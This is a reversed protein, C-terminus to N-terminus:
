SNESSIKKRPSHIYTLYDPNTAPDYLILYCFCPPVQKGTNDCSKCTHVHSCIRINDYTSDGNTPISSFDDNRNDNEQDTNGEQSNTDHDPPRPTLYDDDLNYDDVYRNATDSQNEVQVTYKITAVEEAAINRRINDETVVEFGGKDNGSYLRLTNVDKSYFIEGSSGVNRDLFDDKRPIIRIRNVVPDNQAM